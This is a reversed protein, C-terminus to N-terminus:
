PRREVARDIRAALEAAADAISRALVTIGYRVLAPSESGSPVLAMEDIDIPSGDRLTSTYPHLAGPRRDRKSVFISPSPRDISWNEQMESSMFGLWLLFDRGDRHRVKALWTNGSSDAEELQLFTSAEPM